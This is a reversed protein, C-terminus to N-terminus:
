QINAQSIRIDLENNNEETMTFQISSRSKVLVLTIQVGKQRTWIMFTDDVYRLLGTPKQPAVGLVMEMFYERYINAMVPLLPLPLM